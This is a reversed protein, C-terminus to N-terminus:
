IPRRCYASRRGIWRRHSRAATKRVVKTANANRRTQGRDNEGLSSFLREDAGVHAVPDRIPRRAEWERESLVGHPEETITMQRIQHGSRIRSDQMQYYTDVLYRAEAHSLTVAAKKLDRTLRDVSDLVNVVSEVSDM